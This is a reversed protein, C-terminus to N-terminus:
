LRSKIYNGLEIGALVEPVVCLEAGARQIKTMYDEEVGRSFIRIKPNLHKATVVGLLNTLDDKATFVIAKARDISASRLVEEKAFDGDIVTYGRDRLMEVTASDKEIVLFRSKKDSLEACVREALQSYGCVIVHRRLRSAELVNLRSLIGTGTMIEVLAALAFGVAIIKIIGDVVSILILADFDASFPPAVSELAPVTNIGVADFLASVTYYASVYFNQSIYYLFILTGIASATAVVGLAILTKGAISRREVEPVKVM